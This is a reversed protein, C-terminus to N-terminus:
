VSLRNLLNNKWFTASTGQAPKRGQWCQTVSDLSTSIWIDCVMRCWIRRHRKWSPWRFRWLQGPPGEWDSGWMATGPSGRLWQGSVALFMFRNKCIKEFYQNNGLLDMFDTTMLLPFNGNQSDHLHLNM